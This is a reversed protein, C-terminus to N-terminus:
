NYVIRLTANGSYAGAPNSSLIHVTAGIKVSSYIGSNNYTASTPSVTFNDITLNNSFGDTLNISNEVISVSFPARPEGTLSFEAAGVDSTTITITQDTGAITQAFSLSSIESMSVGAILTFKIDLSIDSTDLANNSDTVRATCTGSYNGAPTSSEINLDGGVYLITEGKNDLTLNGWTAFNNVTIQNSSSDSIQVSSELISITITGLVPGKKVIVNAADTSNTTENVQVTISTGGSQEPFMLDDRTTLTIAANSLSIINFFLFLTLLIKTHM